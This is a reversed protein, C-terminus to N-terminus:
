HLTRARNRGMWYDKRFFTEADRLARVLDSDSPEGWARVARIQNDLGAYIYGLGASVRDVESSVIDFLLKLQSKKLPDSASDYSRMRAEITNAAHQLINQFRDDNGRLATASSTGVDYM